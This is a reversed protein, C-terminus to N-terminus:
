SPPPVSNPDRENNCRNPDNPNWLGSDDIRPSPAVCRNDTCDGFREVNYCRYECDTAGPGTDVIYCEPLIQKQCWDRAICSQGPSKGCLVPNDDAINEHVNCVGNTQDCCLSACQLDSNCSAGIARNGTNQTEDLCQSVIAQSWCRKNFCCSDAGCQSNSSCKTFSSALVDENSSNISANRVLQLKLESSELLLIKKAQQFDEDLIEIKATATCSGIHEGTTSDYTSVRMNCGDMWNTEGSSGLVQISKNEGPLLSGSTALHQVNAGLDMKTYRPFLNSVAGAEIKDDLLASATLTKRFVGYRGFIAEESANPLRWEAKNVIRYPGAYQYNVGGIAATQLFTNFTLVDSFQYYPGAFAPPVLDATPAFGTLCRNLSNANTHQYYAIGTEISVHPDTPITYFFSGSGAVIERKLGQDRVSAYAYLCAGDKSGNANCGAGSFTPDDELNLSRCYLGPDRNSQAVDGGGAVNIDLEYDNYDFLDYFLQLDRFQQQQLDIILVDVVTNETAGPGRGTTAVLEVPTSDLGFSFRVKLNRNALTGTNLGAIYLQGDYNKPLTLKRTYSGDFPDIFHTLEVEPNQTGTFCRVSPDTAIDNVCTFQANTNGIGGSGNSFQRTRASDLCSALLLSLVILYTRLIVLCEVVM